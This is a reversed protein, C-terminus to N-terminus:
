RWFARSARWIEGISKGIGIMRRDSRQTMSVVRGKTDVIPGGSMGGIGPQDFVTWRGELDDVRANVASIIGVRLHDYMGAERASGFAAIEWGVRLPNHQPKLEPRNIGPIWLVAYDLEENGDVKLAEIGDVFIGTEAWGGHVCHDATIGFDRRNDIVWGSCYEKGDWTKLSFSSAKLKAAVGSWNFAGAPVPVILLLALVIALLSRM